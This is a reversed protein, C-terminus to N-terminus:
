LTVYSGYVTRRSKPFGWYTCALLEIISILVVAADFKNFHDSAYTQFGLGTIKLLFEIIFLVTLVLNGIELTRAYDRPMGHYEM